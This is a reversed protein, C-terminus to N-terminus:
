PFDCSCAFIGCPKLVLPFIISPPLLVSPSRLSYGVRPSVAAVGSAMSRVVGADHRPVRSGTSTGPADCRPQAWPQEGAQRLRQGKAPAAFLLVATGLPLDATGLTLAQTEAHSHTEALQSSSTPPSSQMAVYDHHQQLLSRSPSPSSPSFEEGLEWSTPLGWPCPGRLFGLM